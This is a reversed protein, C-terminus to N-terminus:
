IYRWKGRVGLTKTAAGSNSLYIQLYIFLQWLLWNGFYRILFPNYAKKVGSVVDNASKGDGVMVM